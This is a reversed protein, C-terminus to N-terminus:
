SGYVRNVAATVDEKATDRNLRGHAALLHKFDLELVRRFDPELSGDKKTMMKRWPPGILTGMKFGMLPMMAKLMLSCYARDTWHQISDCSLLVGGHSPLLLLCEPAKTERYAFLSGTVPLEGDESLIHHPAPEPYPRSKGPAWLEASYRDVYYADDYGHIGLRLVHKVTGLDDLTAESEPDLRVAHVVTLDSGERIIVMNRHLHMGPGMRITGQVMYLDPFLEEIPGHTNHPAFSSESM